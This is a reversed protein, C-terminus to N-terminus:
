ASPRVLKRKELHRLLTEASATARESNVSYVAMIKEVIQSFPLGGELAQWVLMASENLQYYQRTNLDVLVGAGDDLHSAVIHELPVFAPEIM